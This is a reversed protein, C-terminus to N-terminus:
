GVVSSSSYFHVASLAVYFDTIGGSLCLFALLSICMRVLIDVHVFGIRICYCLTATCDGTIKVGASGKDGAGCCGVLRSTMGGQCAVLRGDGGVGAM